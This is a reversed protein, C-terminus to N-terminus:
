SNGIGGILTIYIGNWYSGSGSFKLTGEASIDSAFNAGNLPIASGSDTDVAWFQTDGKAYTRRYIVLGRFSGLDIEDPANHAYVVHKFKLNGLGLM